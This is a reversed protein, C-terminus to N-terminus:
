SIIVNFNATKKKKSSAWLAYKQNLRPNYLNQSDWPTLSNFNNNLMINYSCTDIKLHVPCTSSLQFFGLSVLTSSFCLVFTLKHPNLFYYFDHRKWDFHHACLQSDLGNSYFYCWIFFCFLVFSSCISHFKLL